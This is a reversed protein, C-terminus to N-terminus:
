QSSNLCVCTHTHMHVTWPLELAFCNAGAGAGVCRGNKTTDVLFCSAFNVLIRVYLMKKEM